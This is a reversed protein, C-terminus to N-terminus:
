GVVLISSPVWFFLGNLGCWVGFFVEASMSVREAVTWLVKILRGHSYSVSDDFRSCVAFSAWVM